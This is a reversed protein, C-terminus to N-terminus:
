SGSPEPDGTPSHSRLMARMISIASRGVVANQCDRASETLPASAQWLAHSAHTLAGAPRPWPSKKATRFTPKSPASSKQQLGLLKAALRDFTINLKLDTFLQRSLKIRRTRRCRYIYRSNSLSILCRQVTRTSLETVRAIEAVYLPRRINYQTNIFLVEQSVIDLRKILHCLVKILSERHQRHIQHPKHKRLRPVAKEYRNLVAQAPALGPRPASPFPTKTEVHRSYVLAPLLRANARYEELTEYVRQKFDLVKM